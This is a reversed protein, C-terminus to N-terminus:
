ARPHANHYAKKLQEFTTHTYIETTSVSEHGLLQRVNELGAEHNVMATAFSHRLVHPTRKKLSSVRSIHKRVEYQVRNRNMRGGKKTLFLAPSHREVEQDRRGIYSRLAHALEDGFPVIRQKDRKGTVKLEHNIFSVDADDLAILESLRIGTTYFLLIITRARVDKYTNDWPLEDLLQNMEREKVFQPLPKGKKPGEIAHAPDSAVLGRSLAFRFFSRLASLRRKITTATNGKDMMSEMWDRIIDSDITEWSLQSDKGRFFAEFDTLDRGYHEITNDSARREYRLYDLFQETM